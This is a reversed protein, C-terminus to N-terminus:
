TSWCWSHMVEYMVRTAHKFRVPRTANKMLAWHLPSFGMDGKESAGEPNKRVAELAEDWKQDRCLRVVSERSRSM